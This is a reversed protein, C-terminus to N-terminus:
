SKPFALWNTTQSCSKFGYTAAATGASKAHGDPINVEMALLVDSGMKANRFSEALHRESDAYEGLKGLWTNLDAQGTEPARLKRMESALEDVLRARETLKDVDGIGIGDGFGLDGAFRENLSQCTKDGADILKEEDSACGTLLVSSVVAVFLGAITAKMTV